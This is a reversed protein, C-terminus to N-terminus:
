FINMIDYRRKLRLFLLLVANYRFAFPFSAQNLFSKANRKGSIRWHHIMVCQVQTFYTFEFRNKSFRYLFYVHYKRMGDLITQWWIITGAIMRRFVLFVWVCIKLCFGIGMQWKRLTTCWIVICKLNFRNQKQMSRMCKCQYLVLHFPQNYDVFVLRAFTISVNTHTQAM